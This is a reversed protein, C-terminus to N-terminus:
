CTSRSQEEEFIRLRAPFTPSPIDITFRLGDGVVLSVQYVTVVQAPSHQQVGIACLLWPQRRHPADHPPAIRGTLGGYARSASDLKAVVQRADHNVSYAKCGKNM